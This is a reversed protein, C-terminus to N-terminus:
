APKDIELEKRIAAKAALFKDAVDAHSTDYANGDERSIRAAVKGALLSFSDLADKTENSCVVAVLLKTEDFARSAANRQKSMELFAEKWSEEHIRHTRLVSAYAVLANDLESLRRTAEFLVERKLSAESTVATRLIFNM